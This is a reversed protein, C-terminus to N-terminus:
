NTQPPPFPSPAPQRAAPPDPFAGHQASPPPTTKAATRTRSVSHHPKHKIVPRPPMPAALLVVQVPNPILSPPPTSEWFSHDPPDGINVQVTQPVFGPKAFTVSQPESAVNLACPTLCTQGQSTRVDAGPPNSEFRLPQTSPGSPKSSMWDTMSPMGGSCGALAVGMIVATAAAILEVRSM